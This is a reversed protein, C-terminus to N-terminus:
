RIPTCFKEILWAATPIGVFWLFFSFCVIIIFLIGVLRLPIQWHGEGSPKPLGRLIRFTKM